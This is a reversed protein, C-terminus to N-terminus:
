VKITKYILSVFTLTKKELAKVKRFIFVLIITM